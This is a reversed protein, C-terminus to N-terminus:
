ERGDAHLDFTFVGAANTPRELVDPHRLTRRADYYGVRWHEEMSLQSFEYDKSHGEYAKARYILHVIHVFRDAFLLNFQGLTRTFIFVVIL